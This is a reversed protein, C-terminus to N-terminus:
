GADTRIFDHYPMKNRLWSMPMCYREESGKFHSEKTIRIPLLRVQNEMREIRAKELGELRAKDARKYM